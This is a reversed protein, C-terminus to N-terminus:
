QRVGTQALLAAPAKAGPALPSVPKIDFHRILQEAVRKFSPAAVTKGYAVGNPAKKDAGDVIVSIVLRPQSAPLFGVFSVVHERTSYQGDIIKQSTGTKGAVEYDTIAAEPATGAKTAVGQLMRAVTQATRESIVRAGERRDFRYVVEGASDVVQRIISPRLLVGGSAIVGMAQHMQLPTSAVSHGMPMRTITLGDWNKPSALIGPSESGLNPFGTLQGFGFARAYGYFRDDGMAMALQAAGRNSSRTVIETINLRHDFAHDEKPLKRIKGQYEISESTCDFTTGPTVLGENLAGAVAVIKFVSGPEYMDAVAVNRMRGQQDKTLKNYTNLDFSPYNGLALIFGTRADSVIITAKEPEYKTAIAALEEDVIQQAVSDISLKVSYGDAAPVQRTRFQALEERKGDKESELWGNLGHLYFDAYREIGTVPREQRDVYGVIHAALSNNPYARRFVRQGIVGRINLQKIATFTSETITESLKAFRIPRLGYADVADDALTEDDESLESGASAAVPSASPTVNFAFAAPVTAATPNSVAPVVVPAPRFKTTFIRALEGPNMGILAALQPWKSEDEKRLSQPDVALVILSRSTALKAGNADLIDGRRGPVPEIRYRAQSVFKLLTDRDIVHLWVLRFGIGVFSALIITALLVQRSNSAFGKSM